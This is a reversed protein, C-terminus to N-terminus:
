RRARASRGIWAADGRGEIERNVIRDLLARLCFLQHRKQCVARRLANGQNKDLAREGVLALAHRREGREGFQREDLMVRELVARRRHRHM